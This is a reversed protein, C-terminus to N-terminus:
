IRGGAPMTNGRREIRPDLITGTGLTTSASPRIIYMRTLLKFFTGSGM